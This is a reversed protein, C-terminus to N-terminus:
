SRHRKKKQKSNAFRSWETLLERRKQLMDGRNYAKEMEDSQIHALAAEVVNTPFTATESAWTKFTARFGHVTVDDRKMRALLQSMAMNSLHKNRIGPFVWDNPDKNQCRVDVLSLAVDVLPIRYEVKTKTRIAPITWLRKKLDFESVRSAIAEGTRCATLIVLMLADRSTGDMKALAGMFTPLQEYPLHAHHKVTRIASLRPLLNQLHGRWRAPNDGSRYEHTTCWNLISEIRGRVRGATEPKETWIPRLVKMVAATDILRVPTTGIQPYAYTELTATWQAAHKANRWEPRHATIYEGAATEFDVSHALEAAQNAAQARASDIPDIGRSLKQRQELARNRAESLTWIGVSGLGMDRRRGNLSYRFVWSKAGTESVLLYLGNGDSIMRQHALGNKDVRPRARSVAVATLKQTERRAM